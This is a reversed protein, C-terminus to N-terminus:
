YKIYITGPTAETPDATGSTIGLDALTLAGKFTDLAAAITTTLDTIDQSVHAHETTPVDLLTRAATKGPDTSLDVGAGGATTNLIGATFYGKLTNIDLTSGATDHLNAFFVDAAVPTKIPVQQACWTSYENYVSAKLIPITIWNGESDRVQMCYDNTSAM